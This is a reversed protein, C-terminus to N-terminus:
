HRHGRAVPQPDTRASSAGSVKWLHSAIAAGIKPPAVATAVQPATPTYGQLDDAQTVKEGSPAARTQAFQKQLLELKQTTLILKSGNRSKESYLEHTEAPRTFTIKKRKKFKTPPRRKPLMKEAAPAGPEHAVKGGQKPASM